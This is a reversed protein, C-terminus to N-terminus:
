TGLIVPDLHPVFKTAEILTSVCDGYCMGVHHIFPGEILTREWTKWDDVEMWLYNNQTFPGEVTRGAGIALKYTGQEGDFRAVTIDGDKLRFHTMGAEPLPLIWHTGSKAREDPHLMSIPAGVHWMLVANENEPHRATFEILFAPSRDGMARKLLVNSIAGHIDSEYSIPIEDSVLSETLCAYSGTQEVYSNFDQMAIADLGHKEALELLEDRAALDLLLPDITDFGSIDWTKQLDAAKARYGARDSAVRNKLSELFEVMDIPLVEVKFKQLLDSEDIITTWFFDIRQGVVGVRIGTRLAAATHAANAFRRIGDHLESSDFGCNEIYSFPVGLKSLVKSSALLGCLTDTDRTGDANPAADRPGWLLTPLDLDRGILGAAHETGFNGHLLMLADPRQGEADIGGSFAKIARRIDENTRVIGDPVVNDLDRFPIGLETLLRQTKQKNEIAREHSFVFKGIPCLAIVPQNNNM